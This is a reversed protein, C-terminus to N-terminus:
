EDEEKLINLINKGFDTLYYLQYTTDTEEKIKTLNNIIFFVM